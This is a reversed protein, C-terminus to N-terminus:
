RSGRRLLSGVVVASSVVLGAITAYAVGESGFEWAYALFCAFGLSALLGWWSLALGVVLGASVLVMLSIVYLAVDSRWRNAIPV